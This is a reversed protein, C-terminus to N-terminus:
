PTVTAGMHQNAGGSDSFERGAIANPGVFPVADHGRGALRWVTIDIHAMSMYGEGGPGSITGIRQGREVTAGRALDRDITVHFVAVGYGNGADVLMGGSGRDIWQVTGSVPAFVPQGATDGDVRAWDLSYKYQAFGSRNTHTGTNYGQVVEWKGGAFPWTIGTSDGRGPDPVPASSDPAIAAAPETVSPAIPDQTTANVSGPAMPTESVAAPVPANPAVGGTLLEVAIWGSVGNGTVPVFGNSQAGDVSLATGPPLVTLVGADPSPSSRLNSDTITAATGLPAPATATASSSSMSSAVPEPASEPGPETGAAPALSAPAAAVYGAPVYGSQGAAVVLLWSAGDATTVSEGAVDLPNGDGLTALAVADHGPQERLLVPEGGSAIVAPGGAPMEQGRVGSSVPVLCLAIALLCAVGYRGAACRDILRM